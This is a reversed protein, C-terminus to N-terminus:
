KIREGLITYKRDGYHIYINSHELVKNICPHTYVGNLSTVLPMAQVNHGQADSLVIANMDADGVQMLATKGVGITQGSMSYAMFLYTNDSTWQGVQEFPKLAELTRFNATEKNATFTFQVGGLVVDSEVYLIGNEIYYLATGQNLAQSQVAPHAIINITGVVDLINVTNDTNVDAAEFIFPQPNGNTLYSVETVVDAVDVTMSGNADGKVATLPTAVVPNSLAYSGLSTTIQKIVYYYTKGPVVNFDVFNVEEADIMTENVRITDFKWGAEVYQGLKSDWYRNWKITDNTWRYINYGLLDAFDEEDTEWDLTVKGLGPTAMLGTSMSGAASIEMNFRYREIPIEFHENDEADAVYLRNLGDSVTKGDITFYATYITSDASWSGNQSIAHQTYPPRVGYSIYPVITTDMARNFYVDCKHTGVGLPPLLEFEDQADIGNILIKWVIGHAEKVPRTLVSDLNIAGWSILLDTTHNFDLIYQQLLKRNATGYYNPKNYMSISTTEYSASYIQNDDTCLNGFLNNNVMASVNLFWHFASVSSYSNTINCFIRNEANHENNTLSTRAVLNQLNCQISRMAYHLPYSAEIDSVICHYLYGGITWPREGTIVLNSFKAYSISNSKVDFIGINGLDLDAKTFVIMSDPTGNAILNGECVFSTNDKFKIVTGPKITLTVGTPVALPATVIYHVNPYLTMDNAIVGGIEVGNEVTLTTYQQMEEAVNDCTAFLTINFRRGDACDESFHIRIPNLSTAKAYSSLPKGFPVSDTLVQVLTTDDDTWTGQNYFGVKAWVKINEAQGWANRIVPYVEITEGADPRGDGDGSVSDAIHYTVLSLNPQRDADTIAYTDFINIIDPKKTNTLRVHILDGFLLEKSLYEKRDLMASIAGAVLPCAMSTGNLQKYRGGPYTSIISMGPARLEYNYLQEESYTSMIPGDHDFNSFSALNGNADSAEVGLVFTYAAPFMPGNIPSKNIDCYHSYICKFDNGAAAVLVANAYARGLSQELAISSSYSGFSMSLIDAGNAAAYDIGKIITAVDGTGDSQMVTIPMILANPNAGTIGIKNDGVAAAIGACHTGHGNFDHQAPTNDIFNWGHLDDVFGNADDDQKALGNEEAPNTWINDALDPHETDVGTDLIAIVSRKKGAIKPEKWLKDLGIEKISWQQGHLPENEYSSPSALAYVLYNPEAYEVEDLAKLRDIVEFIPTQKATEESLKIRYLKGLNKPEIDKGNYAKIRKPMPRTGTLPMLEEVSDVGLATFLNDVANDQATAFKTRRPARMRVAGDERFKVIVEGQHYANQNMRDIKVVEDENNSSQAMAPSAPFMGLLAVAVSLYFIHKNM